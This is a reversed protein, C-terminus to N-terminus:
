LELQHEPDRLDLEHITVTMFSALSLKSSSKGVALSVLKQSALTKGGSAVVGLLRSPLTRTVESETRLPSKLTFNPPRDVEPSQRHPESRFDARDSTGPGQAVLFSHACCQVNVQERWRYNNSQGSGTTFCQGLGFSLSERYSIAVCTDNSRRGRGPPILATRGAGASPRLVKLM